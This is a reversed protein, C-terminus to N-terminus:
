EEPLRKGNKDVPIVTVLLGNVDKVFAWADTGDFRKFKVITPVQVSSVEPHRRAFAVRARPIRTPSVQREPPQDHFVVSDESGYSHESMDESSRITSNPLYGVV